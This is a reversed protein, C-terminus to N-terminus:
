GAKEVDDSFLNFYVEMQGVTPVTVECQSALRALLAEIRREIQERGHMTCGNPGWVVLKAVLRRVEPVQLAGNM